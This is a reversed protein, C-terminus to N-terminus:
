FAGPEAGPLGMISAVTSYHMESTCEAILCGMADRVYVEIGASHLYGRGGHLTACERAVDAAMESVFPKVLHDMISDGQGADVLQAADYLMSRGAEINQKMRVLKHQLAQMSALPRERVTRQRLFAETKEWVGDAIGLSMATIFHTSATGAGSINALERDKVLSSLDDVLEAPVRVDTLEICGWPAGVGMKPMPTVKVGSQSTDIWFMHMNNEFIGGVGLMDAFTGQTVYYRAGNLVYDDGDREAIEPHETYNAIGVPDTFAAAAFIRGAVADEFWREMVVPNMVMNLPFLMQNMAAIAIAPCERALEEVVLVGGMTGMEAGGLAKPVMTRFFGEGGMLRSMEMLFPPNEYAELRRPGVVERAFARVRARLETQEATM